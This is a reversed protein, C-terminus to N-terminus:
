VADKVSRFGITSCRDLGPYMLLIKDHADNPQAGSATYWISGQVRLHSGGRIIAYRTHGDDRESETWEWVNGAMDYCGFSNMGLPYQKVPTIHDSAGNCCAPNYENGWPWLSGKGGEAAYQWEEERPLRKKAWKAYARADDLDVWVVPQADESDPYHWYWPEGSNDEPKVWHDLFRTLDKPRYHTEDIFRAYETNTVETIDMYFAPLWYYQTPHDKSRRHTIDGYCAGEMWHTVNHRVNMIFRGGPILAMDSPVSSLPAKDTPEVPRAQYAEIGVNRCEKSRSFYLRHHLDVDDLSKELALEREQLTDEPHLVPAPLRDPQVVICGPSQAELRFGLIVQDSKVAASVQSPGWVDYYRENVQYPISLIQGQVPESNRNFFTYVTKEGATWQHAFVGDALTPVFPQWNIDTFADKYTRLLNVYKRVLRKEDYSYPNWWGFVNEWLVM